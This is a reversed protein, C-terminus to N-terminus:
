NKMILMTQLIWQSYEMNHAEQVPQIIDTLENTCTVYRRFAKSDMIRTKFQYEPKGFTFKKRRQCEKESFWISMIHCM